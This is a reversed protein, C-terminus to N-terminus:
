EAQAISHPKPTKTDSAPTKNTQLKLGYVSELLSMYIQRYRDDDYNTDVKINTKIKM